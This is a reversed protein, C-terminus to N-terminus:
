SAVLQQAVDFQAHLDQIFHVLLADLLVLLIDMRVRRVRALRSMIVRMIPLLAMTQLALSALRM